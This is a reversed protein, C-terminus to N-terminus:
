HPDESLTKEPAAKPYLLTGTVHADNGHLAWVPEAIRPATALSDPGAWDVAGARGRPGLLLPAVFAHLRNVLQDALLSGALEAGGECLISVVERKALEVLAARMDCRGEATAPLTIINLGLDELAKQHEPDAQETTLVCTSVEKASKVIHRDLPTRLKSDVIVRIPNRGKGARVTLRPNDAMVTAIGVMVADHRARLQHVFARSETSTIWKSDGTKTAIRGDLSLALKLSLYSSGTTIFKSWPEILQRAETALVDEVVEIGANRLRKAGGGSVNPNPDSCGIVVRRVGASVLASVCPPTRGQHTCPELTVYVTAGRARAGAERLAAYEAHDHGAEEHHAQSILEYGNPTEHVILCGVHPNPSPDGKKAIEIAKAMLEEDFKRM